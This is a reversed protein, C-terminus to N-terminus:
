ARSARSLRHRRQCRGRRPRGHCYAVQERRRGEVYQDPHREDVDQGPDEPHPHAVTASRRGPRPCRVPFCAGRAEERRPKPTRNGGRVVSPDPGCDRATAPLRVRPRATAASGGRAPEGRSAGVRARRWSRLPPPPPSGPRAGAAEAETSRGEGRVVTAQRDRTAAAGVQPEATGDARSRRGREARSRAPKPLSATSCSPDAGRTAPAPPTTASLQSRSRRPRFSASPTAIARDAATAASIVSGSTGTSSTWAVGIGSMLSSAMSVIPQGVKAAVTPRTQFSRGCDSREVATTKRAVVALRARDCPVAGCPM